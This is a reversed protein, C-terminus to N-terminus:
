SKKSSYIRGKWSVGVGSLSKLASNLFIGITILAGLSSLLAYKPDGIRYYKQIAFQVSTSIVLLILSFLLFPQWQYFSGFYSLLLTIITILLPFVMLAFIGVAGALAVILRKAKTNIGRKQVLGLFINKSWGEWIESLREYMRISMLEQANILNLKFGANKVLKAMEADDAIQGKITEYGGVSNFVSRKILIFPGFAIAVKSEKRNVKALPSIAPILGLPIPQVVKEWFTQCLHRPVLSLLDIDNKIAYGVTKTILEPDHSTDADIFILLEGKAQSAGQQLAFPKGIWGEQLKKQKVIIFRHDNGIINNIIDITNDTSDDVIIIELNPYSQSKLSEICKQVRYAENRTPVIVSVLPASKEIIQQSKKSLYPMKRYNGITIIFYGIWALLCVILLFWIIYDIM